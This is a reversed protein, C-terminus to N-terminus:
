RDSQDGEDTAGFVSRDSDPAALLEDLDLPGSPQAPEDDGDEDGDDDTWPDKRAAKRLRKDRKREARSTREGKAPRDPKTHRWYLVTLVMMLVAIAVLGGVIIWVKENADFDFFGGEDQVPDEAPAESTPTTAPATTSPATTGPVLISSPTTVPPDQAWAAATGGLTLVGAVTLAVLARRTLTPAAALPM